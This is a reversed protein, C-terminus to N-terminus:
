FSSAVLNALPAVVFLAKRVQIQELAKQITEKYEKLAKAHDNSSLAKNLVSAGDLEAVRQQM